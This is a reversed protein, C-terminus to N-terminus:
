TQTLDMVNWGLFSSVERLLILKSSQQQPVGPTLCNFPAASSPTLLESHLSWTHSSSALCSHHHLRSWTKIFGAFWCCAKYHWWISWIEWLKRECSRGPGSIFQQRCRRPSTSSPWHRPSFIVCTDRWYIELRWVCGGGPVKGDSWPDLVLEREGGDGRIRRGGTTRRQGHRHKSKFM